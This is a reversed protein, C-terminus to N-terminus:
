SGFTENEPRVLPFACFAYAGYLFHWTSWSTNQPRPADYGLTISSIACWSFGLSLFTLLTIYSLRFLHGWCFCFMCHLSPSSVKRDHYINPVSSVIKATQYIAAVTTRAVVTGTPINELMVAMMDLIPGVDGVQWHCLFKWTVVICRTLKRFFWFVFIIVGLTYSSAQIKSLM